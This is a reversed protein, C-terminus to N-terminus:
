FHLFVTCIYNCKVNVIIWIDMEFFCIWCIKFKFDNFFSISIVVNTWINYDKLLVYQHM